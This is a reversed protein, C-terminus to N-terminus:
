DDVATASLKLNITMKDVSSNQLKIDRTEGDTGGNSKVIITVSGTTSSNDVINVTEVFDTGTTGEAVTYTGSPVGSIDFTYTGATRGISVTASGEVYPVSPILINVDDDDDDEDDIDTDWDVVVPDIVIEHLKFTINFIHKYGAKLKTDNAAPTYVYNYEKGDLLYVIKISTFGGNAFINGATMYPVVMLHGIEVFSYPSITKAPDYAAQTTTISNYASADGGNPYGAGTWNLSIADNAYTGPNVRVIEATGSTRAGNIQIDKITIGASAIDAAKAMFVVYAQAHKFAMDIKAPFSLNNGNQTVQGNGIAYLFDKQSAYNDAQVVQVKQTPTNNTTWTVDSSNAVNELAIALFNVQVASLPWYRGTEGEWVNTAPNHTFTTPDFFQRSNTIDYASTKIAESTPFTTGAIAARSTSPARKVNQTMPIFGIEQPENGLTKNEAIKVDNNCSALVLAATALIFISKKM